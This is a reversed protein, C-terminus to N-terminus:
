SGPRRSWNKFNVLGLVARALGGISRLQSHVRLRQPVFTGPNGFDYEHQPRPLRSPEHECFSADYLGDIMMIAISRAVTRSPFRMLDSWAREAFVRGRQILRSREPEDVHEAAMRLVNAKRLEQAAWTETPYEMQEQRDFYPIENDVMWCAYHVLSARAYAYMYDLQGSEAKVRLYRALTSLCVIYSWRKEFNLLDRASVDDAPHVSRRILSEAKELYHQAGTLTWADLLAKISNGCGRGPGHYDGGGTSSALGTPGDDLFGLINKRGDDMNVVWDALIVVADRADPNGTLFFYHLLGTTYNHENCPGGGYSHDGRKFNARSYTRHTCTFADKYHDTHWFLGGNYAARDEDTHYIDVDIVHRSLPDFLDLWRTDGSRLYHLIAGHIVDFQNNYHSVVPTPGQYYAAEHDAYVEGYHRWGYEDIIERRAFVNNRGDVVEALLADLRAAREDRASVLGEIAGSDAYYEPTSHVRVRQHVWELESLEAPGDLDWNLWVTHTKQEGGQLEFLDGCQKPFLGVAVCQRDLEIAKPFQQWFEPVAVGLSGAPGQLSITPSARFGCMEKDATRVRYGRFRCPVKGFRNVHNKSQWNEGGSSDQYFELSGGSQTHEPGDTAAKWRLRCPEGDRLGVILSLDRFLVSGPDGLDWLGGKHRARRPNHATLRIRVLGTGTFFCLRVVFRVPARIAFRGEFRVTARVPGRSEVAIKEVLPKATVGAPDTLLMSLGDPTMPDRGSVTVRSVLSAAKRNIHFLARGTDIVVCQPFEHVRLVESPRYSDPGDADCLLWRSSGEAVSKLVFDLLLWKISGDPWQALPLAQLCIKQGDPGLLRLSGAAPLASRSFPIGVTVPQLSSSAVGSQVILPVSIPCRVPTDLNASSVAVAPASRERSVASEM